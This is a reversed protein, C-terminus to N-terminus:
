GRQFVEGYGLQKQHEGCHENRGFQQALQSLTATLRSDQPLQHGAYQQASADQPDYRGGTRSGFHNV